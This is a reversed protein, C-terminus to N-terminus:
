IGSFRLDLAHLLTKQPGVYYHYLWHWCASTHLSIIVIFIYNNKHPLFSDVRFRNLHCLIIYTITSTNLHSM